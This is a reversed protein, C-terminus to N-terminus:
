DLWGSYTGRCSCQTHQPQQEVHVFLTSAEREDWLHRCQIAHEPRTTFILQRPSGSRLLSHWFRTWVQLALLLYASSQELRQTALDQALSCARQQLELM